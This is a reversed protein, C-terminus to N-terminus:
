DIRDARKRLLQIAGPFTSAGLQSLIPAHCLSRPIWYLDPLPRNAQHQLVRALVGRLPRRDLRDGALAAHRRLRQALPHSPSLDIGAAPRAQRRVLPLPKALQFALVALQAPRVLDELRSGSKEVFADLKQAVTMGGSGMKGGVAVNFGARSDARRIAPTMGLDQTETHTCNERCGTMTVNFKRGLNTFAPNGVFISTLEFGYPSADFLENPTLGALACNNVNRVNDIGTQLTTLDLDRISELIDPVDRIKVARLEIQQRTTIDLIGNGQRSAITALARLQKSTAQGATIRIRMMFEGPTPKRYFTGIWKLRERTDADISEWGDHQRALEEIEDLIDLGDKEAKLQEVSNTAPTTM